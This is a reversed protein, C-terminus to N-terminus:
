PEGTPATSVWGEPWIISGDDNNSWPPDDKDFVYVIQCADLAKGAVAEAERDDSRWAARWVREAQVFAALSAHSPRRTMGDRRGITMFLSM